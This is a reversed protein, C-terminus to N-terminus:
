ARDVFMELGHERADARDVRDLQGQEIGLPQQEGLGDRALDRQGAEVVRRHVAVGHAGDVGLVGGRVLRDDQRDDAVDRGARLRAAAHTGAERHPDHGARRDRGTGVRDDRELVGVAADRADRHATRHAVALADAAGTLVQLGTLGRETGTGREPRLLDRQERRDSAVAHEHTGTRPHQHDAGAALEDVDPLLGGEALHGVRVRVQDGRGRTVGAGIGPAVPDDGVVVGRQEVHELALQQTGVQEIM